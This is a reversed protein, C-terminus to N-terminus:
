LADLQNILQRLEVLRIETIIVSILQVVGAVGALIALFGGGESLSMFSSILLLAGAFVVWISHSTYTLLKSSYDYTIKIPFALGGPSVKLYHDKAGTHYGRASLAAQLASLDM